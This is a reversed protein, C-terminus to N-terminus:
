EMSIYYSKLKLSQKTVSGDLILPIVELKGSNKTIWNCRRLGDENGSHDPQPLDKAHPAERKRAVPSILRLASSIKQDLTTPSDALSSDTSNHSLSLSLSSLSLPSCARHLGIPYIKKLHISFLNNTNQKHKPMNNKTKDQPQKKLYQKSM